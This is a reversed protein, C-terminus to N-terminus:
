FSFTIAPLDPKKRLLFVLMQVIGLGRIIQLIGEKLSDTMTATKGAVAEVLWIKPKHNQAFTTMMLILAFSISLIIKM